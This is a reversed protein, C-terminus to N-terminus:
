GSQPRTGPRDEQAPRSGKRGQQRDPSLVPPGTRSDKTKEHTPFYNDNAIEMGYNLLVKRKWDAAEYKRWAETAEAPRALEVWGLESSHAVVAFPVTEYQSWDFAKM